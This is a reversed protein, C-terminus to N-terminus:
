KRDMFERLAATAYSGSPLEFSFTNRRFSFNRLPAFFTRLSGRSSIEPFSRLKFASQTIEEKELLEKERKNLKTEYGIIKCVLWGKKSKSKKNLDPFGYSNEGCVYEGGEQGFAEEMVRESLLRNFLFSQYAHIFMLSLGRPLKRLANVYDYPHRSLWALMSREFHLHNPFQLLAISFDGTELLNKRALASEKDEDGQFALFNMVADKFRGQLMLKGIIHTNERLGFRQPGFYNVFRGDMDSYISEVIKKAGKGAGKIKIRFRNGALDGMKVQGDSRWAGNIRIDKINLSMVDSPPVSFASVLQTTVAKRDKAGACSFRKQSAHLRRALEKVADMTTWNRKQLIFHTFQGDKGKKRIKKDIQFVTGDSSIEEVIFGEPTEIIGGIGDKKSLYSLEM